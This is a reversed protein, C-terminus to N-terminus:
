PRCCTPGSTRGRFRPTSSSDGGSGRRRCGGHGCASPRPPSSIPRRCSRAASACTSRIAAPLLGDRVGAVVTPGAVAAVRQGVGSRRRRVLIPPVEPAFRGCDDSREDAGPDPDHGVVPGITRWSAARSRAVGIRLSLGPFGFGVVQHGLGPLRKSRRVPLISGRNSCTAGAAQALVPRRRRARLRPGPRPRRVGPGSVAPHRCRRRPRPESRLRCDRRSHSRCNEGRRGLAADRFCRRLCPGDVWGGRGYVRLDPTTSRPCHPCRRADLTCTRKGPM